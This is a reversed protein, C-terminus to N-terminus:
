SMEECFFDVQVHCRDCVTMWGARGCLDEGWTAAPSEFYFWSLMNATAHCKPCPKAFAAYRNQGEALPHEGQLRKDNRSQEVDEWPFTEGNEGSHTNGGNM